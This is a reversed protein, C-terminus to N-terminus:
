GSCTEITCAPAPPGVHVEPAQEALAAAVLFAVVRVCAMSSSRRENNKARNPRKASALLRGECL